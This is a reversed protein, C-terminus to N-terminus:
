GDGLPAPALAAEAAEIIADLQGGYYDVVTIGILPPALRQGHHDFMLVSPTLRAGLTRAVERAEGRQGDFGIVPGGEMDVKRMLVRDDYAGSYLMPRLFEDEAIHCWRCHGASFIVLLPLDRAAAERGAERFDHILPIEPLEDLEPLREAAVPVAMALLLVLVSVHMLRERM